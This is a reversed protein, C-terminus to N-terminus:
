RRALHLTKLFGFHGAQKTNHCHQLVGQRLAQPIYLKDGQWALGGRKTLLGPNDRLWPDDQLATRLEHELGSAVTHPVVRAAAQRYPPMIAQVVEEQKSNYQPLRSLANALFNKKGPVYKLQFRFWWVYQAWRVHKPSLRRLTQLVELNKHDTWV